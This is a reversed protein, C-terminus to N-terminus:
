KKNKEVWWATTLLTLIYPAIVPGAFPIYFLGYFLIGAGMLTWSHRVAFRWSSGISYVERELAYDLYAFGIFFSNVLFLLYSTLQSFGAIWAILSWLLFVSISVLFASIGIGLTRFFNAIMRKLGGELAKGTLENDAREALMGMVPSLVSIMFFQYTLTLVWKGTESLWVTFRQLWGADEPTVEETTWGLSYRIAWYGLSILVGPILFLYFRQIKLLQLTHRFATEIM